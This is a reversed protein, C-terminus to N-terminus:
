HQLNLQFFIFYFKLIYYIVIERDYKDNNSNFGYICEYFYCLNYFYCNSFHKCEHDSLEDGSQSEKKNGKLFFKLGGKKKKDM